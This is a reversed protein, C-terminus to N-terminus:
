GRQQLFLLASFSNGHVVQLHADEDLLVRENMYKLLRGVSLTNIVITVAM